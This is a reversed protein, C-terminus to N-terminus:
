EATGGEAEIREKVRLAQAESERFNIAVKAGHEALLLATALGIGRSAGTILAVKDQLLGTGVGPKSTRRPRRAAHESAPLRAIERDIAAAVAVLRPEDFITSVDLEVRFV